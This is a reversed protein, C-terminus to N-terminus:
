FKSMLQKSEPLVRRGEVITKSAAYDFHGLDVSVARVRSHRRVLRRVRRHRRSESQLPLPGPGGALGRHGGQRLPLLIRELGGHSGRDGRGTGRARASESSRWPGRRSPHCQRPHRLSREEVNGTSVEGKSEGPAGCGREPDPPGGRGRRIPDSPDREPLPGLDHGGLDAFCLRGEFDRFNWSVLLSLVWM